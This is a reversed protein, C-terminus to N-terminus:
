WRYRGSSCGRALLLGAAGAGAGQGAPAQEVSGLLGALSEWRSM